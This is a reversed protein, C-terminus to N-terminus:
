EDSAELEIGSATVGPAWREVLLTALEAPTALRGDHEAVRASAAADYCGDLSQAVVLAGAWGAGMAQDVLAADAGSLFVVASDNAPLADPLRLGDDDGVTFRLRGREAVVRLSPPLFYVTGREVSAGEEALAVPLATARAMQRVLRDYRDGDLRLRVLLARPFDGPLAALLQRVPDPGGLGGEVLVAGQLEGFGYSDVDVLSLGGIRSDLDAIPDAARAVAPVVPADAEVLSLGGVDPAGAGHGPAPDATLPADEAVASEAEWTLDVPELYVRGPGHGSRAGEFDSDDDLVLDDLGAGELALEGFGGDSAAEADADGAAELVVDELSIGGLVIGDVGDSTVSADDADLALEGLELVAADLSAPEGRPVDVAHERMEDAVRDLDGTTIDAYGTDFAVPTDDLTPTTDQGAGPPLVDDHRHLKAALHRVWRAADWGSRQAALEAEEFVVTIAPDALLPQFCDLAEELAPELAVVVAQAGTGAIADMTTASPDFAGLLEAGADRVAAQLRDCAEGPRALVIVRPATEPM